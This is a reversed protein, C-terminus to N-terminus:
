KKPKMKRCVLLEIQYKCKGKIKGKYYIQMDALSIRMNLMIDLVHKVHYGFSRKARVQYTAYKRSMRGGLRDDIPLGLESLGLFLNPSM